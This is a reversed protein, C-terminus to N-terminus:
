EEIPPESRDDPLPPAVDALPDNGARLNKLINEVENNGPNLLAIDKFQAIADTQKGIKAYSLGLFYKANAYVPNLIVARELASIAGGYDNNKYRLFGLQFFVGVDNPAILSARETQAIAERINGADAEIQSLLFIAETYNTKKQLAFTLYGRAKATDGKTLEMRALILQMAPGEPNRAIAEKYAADANEYAGEIGLPIVAEYVRGLALWNLYNSEDFDVAARASSISNGLGDQFQARLTDKGLDKQSLIAGLRAIHIESLARYYVDSTYLGTARGVFKEAREMDGSVNAAALGKGFFYVSAFRQGLMYEGVISTIVLIVIILVSLFGLRPNNAFSLTRVAVVGTRSLSAICVGTFLFAFTYLAIGPVYFIAACWFYLALFFSSFVYFRERRNDYQLLAGRGGAYLFVAFFILWAVIGLLGTTVAASPIIGIGFNFDSNWFLTENVGAPKELLWQNAFRNPGVGLFPDEKLTARTIDYTASWSPRVEIHQINLKAAIANTFSGGPLLFIISIIAIVLSLLPLHKRVGNTGTAGTNNDARGFSLGYVFAALSCVGLLVWALSFDITALFAVSVVLAVYLGLKKFGNLSLFQLSFVALLAIAGFFLGLDNWKGLLNDTPNGFLGLSLFNPGGVFRAIQFLAVIFAGIFLGRYLLAVRKIDRFYVAALMALLFFLVSSTFTAIETGSGFLSVRVQASFIGSVFTAFPVLALAALIITKPFSLAGERLCVILWIIFALVVGIQLLNMKAADLAINLFPLVFFPLFFVVFAIVSYAISNLSM